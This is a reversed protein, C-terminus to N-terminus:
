ESNKKSGSELVGETTAIRLELRRAVAVKWNTKRTMQMDGGFIGRSRSKDIVFTNHHQSRKTACALQQEIHLQKIDLLFEVILWM